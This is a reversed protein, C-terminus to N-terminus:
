WRCRVMSQPSAGSQALTTNCRVNGQQVGFGKSTDPKMAARQYDIYVKGKQGKMGCNLCGAQKMQGEIRPKSTFGKIQDM